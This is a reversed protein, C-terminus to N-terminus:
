VNLIDLRVIGTNKEINITTMSITQPIEIIANQYTRNPLWDSYNETAIRAHGYSGTYGIVEFSSKIPTNLRDAVQTIGNPAIWWNPVLDNLLVSAKNNQRLYTGNNVVTVDTQINIKEGVEIAADNLITSLKINGTYLYQRATLNKRWGGYGGVLRLSRSNAFNLTRVVYGQLVLDNITLVCNLSIDTANPMVLDATWIGQMPICITGSIISSGNLNIYNSM